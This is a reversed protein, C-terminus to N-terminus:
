VEQEREWSERKGRLRRRNFKAAGADARHVSDREQICSVLSGVNRVSIKMGVDGHPDTAPLITM